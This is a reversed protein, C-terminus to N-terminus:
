GPPTSRAVDCPASSSRSWSAPTAQPPRNGSNQPSRGTTKFYDAIVFSLVAALVDGRLSGTDPPDPAALATHHRIAAIVLEAQNPWRRALVPRSTGARAAVRRSHVRRLRCRPTQGLGRRAPRGRTGAGRRRRPTPTSRPQEVIDTPMTANRPRCEDEDDSRERCRLSPGVVSRRTPWDAAHKRCVNPGTRTLPEPWLQASATPSWSRYSASLRKETM